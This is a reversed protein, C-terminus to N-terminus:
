QIKYVPVKGSLLSIKVTDNAKVRSFDVGGQAVLTTEIGNSMVVLMHQGDQVKEVKATYTGDPILSASVTAAGAAVPLAAAAALTLAYLTRMNQHVEMYRYWANMAGLHM